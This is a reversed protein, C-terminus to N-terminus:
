IVIVRCASNIPLSPMAIVPKVALGVWGGGCSAGVGAVVGVGAVGAVVGVGDVGAMWHAPLSASCSFVSREGM